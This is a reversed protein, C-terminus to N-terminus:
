RKRCLSRRVSPLCANEAKMAAGVEREERAASQRSEAVSAREARLERQSDPDVGAQAKERREATGARDALLRAGDAEREEKVRVAEAREILRDANIGAINEVEARSLEQVGRERAQQLDIRNALMELYRASTERFQQRTEGDLLDTTRSVGENMSRLDKAMQESTIPMDQDEKTLHDVRKEITHLISGVAQAMTVRELMGKALTNGPADRVVATWAEVGQKVTRRDPESSPLRIPNARATRIRQRAKDILRQNAPDAAYARDRAERAPRPREAADVIAKDKPGYSQSSARERASTAVIKM